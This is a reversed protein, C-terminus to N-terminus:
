DRPPNTKRYGRVAALSLGVTEAIFKDTVSKKNLNHLIQAQNEAVGKAIGKAEGEAKMRETFGPLFYKKAIKECEEKTYSVDALYDMDSRRIITNLPVLLPMVDLELICSILYFYVDLTDKDSLKNLLSEILKNFYKNREELRVDILKESTIYRYFLALIIISFPKRDEFLEDVNIKSIEFSKANLSYNYDNHEIIFNFPSTYKGLFIVFPTVNWINFCDTV